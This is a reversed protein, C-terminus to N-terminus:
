SRGIYWNLSILVCFDLHNRSMPCAKELTAKISDIVDFGRASNVNGFALKEGDITPSDDLLVSGDCGNVFCDHFHLRVISAAMRKEIKVASKVGAKVISFIQPCSKDYFDTRPPQAEAGITALVVMAVVCLSVMAGAESFTGM